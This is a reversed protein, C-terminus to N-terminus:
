SYGAINAANIVLDRLIHECSKLTVSAYKIHGLVWGVHFHYSRMGNNLVSTKVAAWGGKARENNVDGSTSTISLARERQRRQLCNGEFYVVLSWAMM